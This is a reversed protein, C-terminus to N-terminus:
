LGCVKTHPPVDHKQDQFLTKEFQKNKIGIDELIQVAKLRLDDLSTNNSICVNALALCSEVQQGCEGEGFGRDRADIARVGEITKPDSDKNRAIIWQLRDEIPAIIGVLVFNRFKILEEIEGPNRIGEIVYHKDAEIKAILRKAWYGKGHKLRMENGLNQLSVREIPAGIKRAEERVEESLTLRTFGNAVLMEALVSKGSAIPGTIGIIM